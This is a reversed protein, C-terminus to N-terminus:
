DNLYVTHRRCPRRLMYESLGGHIGGDSVSHGRVESSGKRAGSQKKPGLFEVLGRGLVMKPGPFEFGSGKSDPVLEGKLSRWGLM